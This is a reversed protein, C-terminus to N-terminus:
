IPPAFKYYIKEWKMSFLKFLPKLKIKITVITNPYTYAGIILSSKIRNALFELCEKSPDLQTIELLIKELKLM